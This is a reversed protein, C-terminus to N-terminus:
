AGGPYLQDPDVQRIRGRLRSEKETDPRSSLRMRVGDHAPDDVDGVLVHVHVHEITAGTFRGDGNRAGLGYSTVGYEKRVWALADWFAAQADPDLDILDAVHAYPVLLLHLRTGRYPFKNPTVTWHENRHVVRQHPDRDLEAPCFICIGGAELALMDDLQEETRYNSLHYLPM